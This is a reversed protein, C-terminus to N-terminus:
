YAKLQKKMGLVHYKAMKSNDIVINRQGGVMMPMGGPSSAVTNLGGLVGRIFYIGKNDADIEVVNDKGIRSKYYKHTRGAKVKHLFYGNTKLNLFKKGEYKIKCGLASNLYVYPRFFYIHAYGEEPEMIEIHLPNYIKSKDSVYFGKLNDIKESLSKNSKKKSLRPNGTRNNNKKHVYKPDSTEFKLVGKKLELVNCKVTDNKHTVLYDNFQNQANSKTITLFLILLLQINKM